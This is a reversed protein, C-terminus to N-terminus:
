GRRKRQEESDVGGGKDGENALNLTSQINAVSASRMSPASSGWGNKFSDKSPLKITPLNGWGTDNSLAMIRPPPQPSSGRSLPYSM